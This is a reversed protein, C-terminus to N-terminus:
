LVEYNVFVVVQCVLTQPIQPPGCHLQLSETKNALTVDTFSGKISNYPVM